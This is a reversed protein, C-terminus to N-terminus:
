NKISETKIKIKDEDTSSSKKEKANTNLESLKRSFHEAHQYYNESLVPDGSSLADKALQQYKQITKEVNFPNNTSGNRSFHNNGINNSQFYNSNNPRVGSSRRRFSNKQQRPRFRRRQNNM